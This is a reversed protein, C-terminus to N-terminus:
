GSGGLWTYEDALARRCSPDRLLKAVTHHRREVAAIDRPHALTARCGELLADAQHLLLQRQAPAEVHYAVEAIVKMMHLSVNRDAQVYPRSAGFAAEVFAEFTVPQAIVRLHQEADYRRASPLDRRALNALASGLWDLCSMSTFPENIAPSIARASIEVLQNVLFLLDQRQIRQPGLVFAEQIDDAVARGVRRGPGAYLLPKGRSVFDGPRYQVRLLLDHAAATELLGEEDIYQLYGNDPAFIPLAEEFFGEPVDTQPNYGDDSANQGVTEPFLTGIKGNLDRGIGAVVNLVHISQPVHHVFYILVGISALALVLACFLSVHPVFLVAADDSSHITRLVLLCYLFTAIFTGLTLQNGRDRMFNTLLRPGYQSATYAVAAITISFVVGAVTIMSGAITSLLDRAGAPKNTYYWGLRDLWDTGLSADLSTTAFSLVIAGLAMLSPIFWYSARTGEWYKLLTPKM